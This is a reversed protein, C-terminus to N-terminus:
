RTGGRMDAPWTLSTSSLRINRSREYRADGGSQTAMDHELERLDHSLQHLNAFALEAEDMVTNGPDFIADQTLHGLKITRAMAVSGIEPIVEGTIIKFLTTKGTGNDGILGVREGRDILFSLERFIVRDGFSKEINSLTVIPM